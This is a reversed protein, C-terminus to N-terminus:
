VDLVHTVVAAMARCALLYAQAGSVTCLTGVFALSSEILSQNKSCLMLALLGLVYHLDSLGTGLLIRILVKPRRVRELTPQLFGESGEGVPSQIVGIAVKGLAM